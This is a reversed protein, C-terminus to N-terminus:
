QILRSACDEPTEAVLSFSGISDCRVCTVTEREAKKDHQVAALVADEKLASPLQVSVGLNQLAAIMRSRVNEGCMPVMGIAVCEGHYLAGLGVISEVAHGLTHGFNLVKRLGGEREDQQVVDRKVAVARAVIEEIRALLAPDAVERLLRDRGEKPLLPAAEFLSFLTADLTAGMKLAEVLGNAVQRVPLTLLVPPDILVARPQHFAGIMNKYGGFDVATKGGISSDVQALVTTPVNYFDIGRMYTAAAFGALDGVVGGGVAVVADGRTLAADLMVTQLALYTEMCKNEEGQAFCFPIVECSAAQLSGQVATVYAQPVGSDYVLCVRRGKGVYEGVHALIGSQLTVAYSHEGLQVPIIM